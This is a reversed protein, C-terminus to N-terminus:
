HLKIAVRGSYDTHHLFPRHGYDRFFEETAEAAGNWHGYDDIILVGGISLLPYLTDLELRTSEKWDTDLRLVAIRSPLESRGRLTDNVDGQVFVTNQDLLSLRRFNEKVEDLSSIAWFYSNKANAKTSALISAASEGTHTDFDDSTPHTMGEFTDFLWVKRSQAQEALAYKAIISNGGKWVGCEVFDGPIANATVYKCALLTEYLRPTSAMSLDLARVTRIFQHDAETLSLDVIPREQVPPTIRRLLAQLISKV